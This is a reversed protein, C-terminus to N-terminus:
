HAAEGYVTVLADGLERQLQKVEREGFLRLLPGLRGTTVYVRAIEAEGLLTLVTARLRGRIVRGEYAVRAAKARGAIEALVAEGAAHAAELALRHVDEAPATGVFGRSEMCDRLHEGRAEDLLYVATVRGADGGRAAESLAADVLRDGRRAPTLIM